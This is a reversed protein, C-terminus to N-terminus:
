ILTIKVNKDLAQALKHIMVVSVNARGAEIVSINKQDSGIANALAIQSLGKKIRAAKLSEGIKTQIDQATQQKTKM